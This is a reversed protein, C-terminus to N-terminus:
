QALYIGYDLIINGDEDPTTFRPCNYREFFFARGTDDKKFDGMGNETLAAVCQDHMHYIGSDHEAGKIWCVGVDGAPIDLFTFGEPVPTEPPLFMGIWYEPNPGCRMFGLYGNETNPAEGLAELTGFWDNQFWEGWLHGYGGEIQDAATYRKGILRVPPLHEKFTNIIQPM